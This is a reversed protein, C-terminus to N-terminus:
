AWAPPCHITRGNPLMVVDPLQCKAPLDRPINKYFTAARKLHQSEGNHPNFVVVQKKFEYRVMEMAGVQDSDGTILAFCEARDRAADTILYAALNVDSRKEELKYVPVFGDKLVSCDSCQADVFPALTKNKAYFGQITTVNGQAAVAQLYIKQRDIAAMDYPHTKIPATFYKVAVLDLDDRLLM